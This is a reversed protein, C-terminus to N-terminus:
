NNIVLKGQHYSGDSSSWIVNFDDQVFNTNKLLTVLQSMSAVPTWGSRFNNAKLRVAHINDGVALGLSSAPSKSYVETVKIVRSKNSRGYEDVFRISGPAGDLGLAGITDRAEIAPLTIGLQLMREKRQVEVVFESDEEVMVLENNLEVHDGVAVSNIALIRDGLQLGQNAAPSRPHLEDIVLNSDSKLQMGFWVRPRRLRERLIENVQEIPIAYGIGDASQATANNIGILEGLANLLPGGSNGFNIAADTQLLGKFVLTNRRDVKVDIDRNVGSLIGSTLSHSNGLPSGIAIVKEGIMLDDEKAFVIPPHKKGDVIKLLALDSAEDVSILRALVSHGGFEEAFSLQYVVTGRGITQDVVHANTIVLGREDIIVGTGQSIQRGAQQIAQLSLIDDEGLSVAYVGINVVSPGASLYVRSETTFRESAPNINQAVGNATLSCLGFALLLQKQM